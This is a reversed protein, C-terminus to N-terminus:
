CPGRLGVARTAMKFKKLAKASEIEAWKVDHTPSDHNCKFSAIDYAIYNLLTEDPDSNMKYFQRYFSLQQFQMDAAMIVLETAAVSMSSCKHPNLSWYPQYPLTFDDPFLAIADLFKKASSKSATLILQRVQAQQASCPPVERDEQPITGYEWQKPDSINMRDEKRKQTGLLLLSSKLFSLRHGNCRHVCSTPLMARVLLM